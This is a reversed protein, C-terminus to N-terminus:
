GNTKEKASSLAHAEFNLSKLQNNIEALDTTLVSIQYQIHGAKACLSGYEQQLAEVSKLKVETVSM